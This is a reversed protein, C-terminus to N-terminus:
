EPDHRAGPIRSVVNDHMWAELGDLHLDKRRRGVHVASDVATV